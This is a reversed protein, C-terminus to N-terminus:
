RDHIEEAIATGLVLSSCTRTCNNDGLRSMANSIETRQLHRHVSGSVNAACCWSKQWKQSRRQAFGFLEASIENPCAQYSVHM